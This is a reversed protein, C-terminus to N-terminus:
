EPESLFAGPILNVSPKKGSFDISVVDFRFHGDPLRRHKIYVQAVRVMRRQKREEVSEQPFGFDNGTRTKVEVFVTFSRHAAVIDIEGLRSRYNREIIKYGRKKLYGAAIDEGRKGLGIKDM